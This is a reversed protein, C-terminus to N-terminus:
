KQKYYVEAAKLVEYYKFLRYSSTTKKFTGDKHKIYIDNTQPAYYLDYKTNHPFKYLKLKDNIKSM